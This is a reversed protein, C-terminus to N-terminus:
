EDSSVRVISRRRKLRIAFNCGDVCSGTDCCGVCVGLESDTTTDDDTADAGGIPIAGGISVGRQSRGSRSRDSSRGSSWDLGGSGNQGTVYRQWNSNGQWDGGGVRSLWGSGNLWHRGGQWDGSADCRRPKLECKAMRSMALQEKGGTGHHAGLWDGGCPGDDALGGFREGCCGVGRAKHPLCPLSLPSPAVQPHPARLRAQRVASPSVTHPPAGSM